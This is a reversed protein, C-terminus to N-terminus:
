FLKWFKTPSNHRKRKSSRNHRERLKELNHKQPDIREEKEIAQVDWDGEILLPAPKGIIVKAIDDSLKEFAEEFMKVRLRECGGSGM